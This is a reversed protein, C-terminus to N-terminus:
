SCSANRCLVQGEKWEAKWVHAPKDTARPILETKIICVSSKNMFATLKNRQRMTSTKHRGTEKGKRGGIRTYKVQSLQRSHCNHWGCVEMLQLM